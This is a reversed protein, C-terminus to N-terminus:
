ASRPYSAVDIEGELDAKNRGSGTGMGSAVMAAATGVILM